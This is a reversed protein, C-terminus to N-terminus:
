CGTLVNRKNNRGQVGGHRKQGSCFSNHRTTAYYTANVSRHCYRLEVTVGKVIQEIQKLETNYYKKKNGNLKNLRNVFRM